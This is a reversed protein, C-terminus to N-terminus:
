ADIEDLVIAPNAFPYHYGSFESGLGLPQWYARMNEPPFIEDKDAIWAKDWRLGASSSARSWEALNVLEDLKQQMSREPFPGVPVARASDPPVLPSAGTRALIQTTRMVVRLRMGYRADTPFPTGNLAIAKYLPLARCYQEAAWVGFSWAFLYIRRYGAYDEPCLPAPATYNHVALADCEAPPQIRWVANPTAGWGLMYIILDRAGVRRLWDKQM